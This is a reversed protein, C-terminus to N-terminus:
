LKKVNAVQMKQFAVYGEPTFYFKRMVGEAEVVAVVLQGTAIYHNELEQFEPLKLYRHFYKKLNVETQMGGTRDLFEIIQSGIGALENRGIGSTLRVIEPKLKTLLQEAAQLHQPEMETKFPYETMNLTLAVKLVQM